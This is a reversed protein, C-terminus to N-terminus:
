RLSSGVGPIGSLVVSYEYYTFLVPFIWVARVPVHLVQVVFTRLLQAIGMFGGNYLGLPTILVNVGLAFIFSGAVADIGQVLVEKKKESIENLM